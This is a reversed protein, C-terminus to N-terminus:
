VRVMGMNHAKKRWTPDIQLVVSIYNTRADDISMGKISNWAVWKVSASQKLFLPKGVNVNGSTAQKYYKYLELQQQGSINPIHTVYQSAAIFTDEHTVGNMNM